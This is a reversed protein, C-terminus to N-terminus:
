GDSRDGARVTNDARKDADASKSKTSTEKEGTLADIVFKADSVPASPEIGAYVYSADLTKECREPTGPLYMFTAIPVLKKKCFYLDLLKNPFEDKEPFRMEVVYCQEAHPGVPAEGKYTVKVGGLKEAKEIRDILREAMRKSGFDTIMNRTKGFTVGLEPDYKEVTPPAGLLGKRPLTLVKGDDRGAVYACQRFESEPDNWTLRVSLPEARYNASIVEVPMLKKFLGLREQRIFTCTYSRLNQARTLSERLFKIPDAAVAAAPDSPISNASAVTTAAAGPTQSEVVQPQPSTEEVLALGAENPDHAPKVTPTPAPSTEAPRNSVDRVGQQNGCGPAVTLAIMLSLAPVIRNVSFRYM